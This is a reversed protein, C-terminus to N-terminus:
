PYQPKAAAVAEWRHPSGMHAITLVRRDQLTIIIKGKEGGAKPCSNM